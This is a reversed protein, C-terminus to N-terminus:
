NLHLHSEEKTGCIGSIILYYHSSALAANNISQKNQALQSLISSWPLQDEQGRRADELLIIHINNTM